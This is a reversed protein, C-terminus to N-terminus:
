EEEGRALFLVAPCSPSPSLKASRFGPIPNSKKKRTFALKLDGNRGSSGGGSGGDGCGGDHVEMAAMACDRM